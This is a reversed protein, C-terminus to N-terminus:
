DRLIYFGSENRDPLHRSWVVRARGRFLHHRFTIEIGSSLLNGSYSARFGHNSIDCLEGDIVHPRPRSVEIAVHGLLVYRQERRSEVPFGQAPVPELNLEDADFEV